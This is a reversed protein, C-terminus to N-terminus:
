PRHWQVLGRQVLGDLLLLAENPPMGCIDLLTELTTAGDLLSVLYGARHDLSAARWSKAAVALSPVSAGEARLAQSM